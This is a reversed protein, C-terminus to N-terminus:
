KKRSEFLMQKEETELFYIIKLLPYILSNTRCFMVLVPMAQGLMLFHTVHMFNLVFRQTQFKKELPFISFNEVNKVM